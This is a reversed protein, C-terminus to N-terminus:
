IYMEVNPNWSRDDVNTTTVQHDEIPRGAKLVTLTQVQAGWSNLPQTERIAQLLDQIQSADGRLTMEVVDRQKLNTAGGEIGRKMMARIITQRFMVKQVTGTAKAHVVTRAM